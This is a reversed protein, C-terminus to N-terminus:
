KPEIFKRYFENLAHENAKIFKLCSISIYTTILFCLFAILEFAAIKYFVEPSQECIVEILLKDPIRYASYDFLSSIDSWFILFITISPLFLLLNLLERFIFAENKKRGWWGKIIKLKGNQIFDRVLQECISKKNKLLWITGLLVFLLITAAITTIVNTILDRGWFAKYAIWFILFFMSVLFYFVLSLFTGVTNSEFDLEPNRKREIDKLQLRAPNDNDAINIFVTNNVVGLFVFNTLEEIKKKNDSTSDNELRESETWIDKLFPVITRNERRVIFFHWLMIVVLSFSGLVALDFTTIRIGLLNISISQSRIWEDSLTKLNNKVTENDKQKFDQKRPYSSKVRQIFGNLIGIECVCENNENTCTQAITDKPMAMDRIWSLYGNWIAINISACFITMILFTKRARLTASEVSEIRLDITKETLNGFDQENVKTEAKRKAM